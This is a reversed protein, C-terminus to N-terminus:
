ITADKYITELSKLNNYRPDRYDIIRRSQVAEWIEVIGHPVDWQPIFEVTSYLKDFSVFYNRMDMDFEHVSVVTGPIFQSIMDGIDRIQHNQEVSGVNFIQGQVKEKPAELFVHLAAATDRVHIFPRWQEGGFITIAGDTAAQASLLNVVLDFRPRPSLGYTTSFRLIVTCDSDDLNSLIVNEADLKTRAYLSIPNSPSDEKMVDNSSGYVSCTSAFVFRAVNHRQVLHVLRKTAELNVEIALDEYKACGPDGVIAALHVVADVGKIAEELVDAEAIDQNILALGPHQKIERLFVDGGYLLRDVVRVRYGSSLLRRVLISGIYGCGGTVLVLPGAGDEDPLQLFQGSM